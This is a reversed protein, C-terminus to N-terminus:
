RNQECLAVSTVAPKRNFRGRRRQFEAYAPPANHMAAIRYADGEVLYLTGFKAECIRTANELM